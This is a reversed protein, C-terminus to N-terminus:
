RPLSHASSQFSGGSFDGICASGEIRLLDELAARRVSRASRRVAESVIRQWDGTYLGLDIFEETFGEEELVGNFWDERSDDYDDHWEDDQDDDLSNKGFESANAEM